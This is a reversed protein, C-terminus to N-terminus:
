HSVEGQKYTIFALRDGVDQIDAVDTGPARNEERVLDLVNKSYSKCERALANNDIVLGKCGKVALQLKVTHPSQKPNVSVAQQRLTHQFEDYAPVKALAFEAQSRLKSFFGGTRGHEASSAAHTQDTSM